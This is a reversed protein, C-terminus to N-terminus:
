NGGAAETYYYLNVLRKTRAKALDDVNKRKRAGVRNQKIEWKM